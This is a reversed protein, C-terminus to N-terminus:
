ESLKEELWKVLTLFKFEKNEINKNLKAGNKTLVLMEKNKENLSVIKELLDQYEKNGIVWENNYNKIEIIINKDKEDVVILDLQKKYEHNTLVNLFKNLKKNLIKEIQNFILIEFATGKWNDYDSGNFNFHKIKINKEDDKFWYFFFYVFNNNLSYVKEKNKDDAYIINNEILDYLDKYLISETIKEKKLKEMLQNKTLSKSKCLIKIIKQHKRKESFISDFLIEKEKNILNIMTENKLINEVNWQYSESLNLYSYYKIIGGFISYYNIIDEESIHNNLSKLYKAIEILTFPKLELELDFRNYFEEKNEFLKDNMWSIKSGALFCILNKNNVLYSNWSTQFNSIFNDKKSFWCIEDLFLVIKISPYKKEILKFLSSLGVFVSTWNEAEEFRKKYDKFEKKNLVDIDYLKSMINNKVNNLNEENTATKLGILKIEYYDKNHFYNRTFNEVFTTKGVRRVGKVGILNASEKEKEIINILLDKENKRGVFM